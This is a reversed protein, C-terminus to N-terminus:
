YRYARTVTQEVTNGARDAAKARLSVFGHRAPHRVLAAGDKVRVAQWTAGDDFSAEVTLTSLAGVTAGPQPTVTVPVAQPSGAPLANNRDVPPAFRVTWVPLAQDASSRFTWAIDTKTSLQYPAGREAHLALRYAGDGDPRRGVGCEM